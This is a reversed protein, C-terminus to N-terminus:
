SLLRALLGASTSARRAFAIPRLAGRYTLKWRGAFVAPPVEATAVRSRVVGQIRSGRANKKREKTVSTPTRPVGVERSVRRYVGLECIAKAEETLARRLHARHRSSTRSRHRVTPAGPHLSLSIIIFSQTPVLVKGGLHGCKKESALQDEFHVGAAGAEIMQKMLEFANLPGGFGAEADAIIPAFWTEVSLGQAEATEIQDARQLTRNIRKALEPGANAPYLSQDPYM